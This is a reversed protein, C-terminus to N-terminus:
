NYSEAAYAEDNLKAQQLCLSATEEDGSNFCLLGLLYWADADTEDVELLAFLAESSESYKGQEAYLEGLLYLADTNQPDLSITNNLANIAEHTQGDLYYTLALGYAADADSDAYHLFQARAAETNGGELTNYVADVNANEVKDPRDTKNGLGMRVKDGPPKGATSKPPNQRVARLAQGYVNILALMCAFLFIIQKM